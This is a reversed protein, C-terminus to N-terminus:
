ISCNLVWDQQRAMFLTTQAAWADQAAAQYTPKEQETTKEKEDSDKFTFNHFTTYSGLCNTAAAMLSKEPPLMLGM